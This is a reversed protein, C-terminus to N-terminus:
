RKRLFIGGFAEFKSCFPLKEIKPRNEVMKTVMAVTFTFYIGPNYVHAIRKIFWNSSFPSFCSETNAELPALIALSKAKSQPQAMQSGM